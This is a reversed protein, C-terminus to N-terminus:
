SLSVMDAFLCVRVWFIEQLVRLSTQPGERKSGCATPSDDKESVILQGKEIKRLTTLVLDRCIRVLPDWAYNGINRRLADWPM